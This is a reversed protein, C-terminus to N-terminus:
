CGGKSKIGTYFWQFPLIIQEQRVTIIRKGVEENKDAPDIVIQDGPKASRLIESMEFEEVANNHKYSNADIIKGDRKLYVYFPIITKQDSEPNGKVLSIKGNQVSSFLAFEVSKGNLLLPNNYFYNNNSKPFTVSFSSASLLMAAIFLNLIKM